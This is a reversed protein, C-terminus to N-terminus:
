GDADAEYGRLFKLFQEQEEKMAKEEETEEPETVERLLAGIGPGQHQNAIIQAHVTSRLERLDAELRDIERHLRSREQVYDALLSAHANRLIELERANKTWWM